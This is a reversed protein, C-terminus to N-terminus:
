TTQLVKKVEVKRHKRVRYKNERKNRYYQVFSYWINSLLFSDNLHINLHGLLFYQFWTV